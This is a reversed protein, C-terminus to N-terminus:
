MFDHTLCDIDEFIFGGGDTNYGHVKLVAFNFGRVTISSINVINQFCKLFRFFIPDM